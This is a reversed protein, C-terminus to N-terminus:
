ESFFIKNIDEGPEFNLSRPVDEETCNILMNKDTIFSPLMEFGLCIALVPFFDGIDNAQLIFTIFYPSFM